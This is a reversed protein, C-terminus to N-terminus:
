DCACRQGARASRRVEDCDAFGLADLVAQPAPDAGAPLDADPLWVGVDAFEDAESGPGALASGALVSEAAAHARQVLQALAPPPPPAGRPHVLWAPGSDPTFSSLASLKARTAAMGASAAPAFDLSAQSMSLISSPRLLRLPRRLARASLRLLSTM